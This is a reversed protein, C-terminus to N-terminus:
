PSKTKLVRGNFGMITFEIMKNCFNYIIKSLHHHMLVSQYINYFIHFIQLFCFFLLIHYFYDYMQLNIMRGFVSVIGSIIGTFVFSILYNKKGLHTEFYNGIFLLAILNFFIHMIM